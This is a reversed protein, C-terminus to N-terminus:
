SVLLECLHIKLIRVFSCSFAIYRIFRNEKSEILLSGTIDYRDRYFSKLNKEHPSFRVRQINMACKFENSEHSGNWNRTRTM